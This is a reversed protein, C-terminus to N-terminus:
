FELKFLLGLNKLYPWLSPIVVSFSVCSLFVTFYCLWVNGKPVVKEVFITASSLSSEDDDNNNNNALLATNENNKNDNM